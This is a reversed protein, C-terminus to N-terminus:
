CTIIYSSLYSVMLADTSNLTRQAAVRAAEVSNNLLRASELVASTNARRQGVEELLNQVSSNAAAVDMSANSALESLMRVNTLLSSTRMDLLTLNYMLFNFNVRFNNVRSASINLDAESQSIDALLSELTMNLNEAVMSVNIVLIQDHLLQAIFTNAMASLTTITSNYNMTANQIDLITTQNVSGDFTNVNDLMLQSMDLDQEVVAVANVLSALTANLQLHLAFVFARSYAHWLQHVLQHVQLLVSIPTILQMCASFVLPQLVFYVCVESLTQELEVINSTQLTINSLTQNANELQVLLSSIQSEISAVTHDDYNATILIQIRSRLISATGAVESIIDYWQQFCEHCPECNPVRGAAFPFFIYM